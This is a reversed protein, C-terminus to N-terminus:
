PPSRSRTSSFPFVVMVLSPAVTMFTRVYNRSGCVVALQFENECSRSM